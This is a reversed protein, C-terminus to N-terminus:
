NEYRPLGGFVGGLYMKEMNQAERPKEDSFRKIRSGDEGFEVTYLQDPRLISSSLLNTSHTVFLMQANTSYKMFYRILLKELDNHFGSSFEDLILLGGKHTCHFFAPLLNLLNQTGTSEMELLIPENIGNRKMFIRKDEGIFASIKGSSTAGYEVRQGFNYEEFFKNIEDTGKEELYKNLAIGPAIGSSQYLNIKKKYLDLYISTSLFAFWEQLIQNGRFRTNFYIERLFLTDPQIESYEKKETLSVKAYSNERELVAKGDVKLLEHIASGDNQYKVFYDIESGKIDFVFRMSVAPNKSFLCHYMEFPIEAKGFLMDLLLKVPLLAGSKGSANAGVFLIGKLLGGITNKDELVKYNTKELSFTTKNKFSRFNEVEYYKLM